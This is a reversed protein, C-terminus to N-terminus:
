KTDLDSDVAQNIIVETQNNQNRLIELDGVKTPKKGTVKMFIYFVAVIALMFGAFVIIYITMPSLGAAEETKNITRQELANTYIKDVLFIL